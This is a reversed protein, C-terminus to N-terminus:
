PRPRGIWRPVRRRYELYDPGRVRALHPEELLVVVVHFFLMALGAYIANSLSRFIIAQAAIASVMSIYMPNRSYRYLGSKVVRGPEEGVLFRIRRTIFLAPTGGALLFNLLCQLYVLIAAALLIWGARWWGGPAPLGQRLRHPIWWFVLGPILITFILGRIWLM